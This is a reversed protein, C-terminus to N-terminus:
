IKKAEMRKFLDGVIERIDVYEEPHEARHRSEDEAIRAQERAYEAQRRPRGALICAEDLTALDPFATEGEQRKSLSLSTVAAQVDEIPHKSLQSAYIKLATDSLNAQRAESLILLLKAVTSKPSITQLPRSIATRGSSHSTSSSEM